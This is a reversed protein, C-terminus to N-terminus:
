RLDLTTDPMYTWHQVRRTPTWRMYLHIARTLYNPHNSRLINSQSGTPIAM